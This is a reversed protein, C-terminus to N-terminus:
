LGLPTWGRNIMAAKWREESDLVEESSRCVQSRLDTTILRLEWGFRHTVRQM